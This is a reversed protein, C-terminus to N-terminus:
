RSELEKLKTAMIWLLIIVGVPLIAILSWMANIGFHPLLQFFPIVTLAVFVAYILFEM